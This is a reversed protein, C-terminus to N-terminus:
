RLRPRPATDGDSRAVVASPVPLGLLQAILARNGQSSWDDYAAWKKRIVGAKDIVFSEPYGTIKYIATMSDRGSSPVDRLIDFTLGYGRTFAQVTSDDSEDHTNVGVIKLGRPGYEKYLKELSPMEVRCPVCWTAWVNVLVVQGKYDALTRRSHAFLTVGEFDPATVGVDVPFIEDRLSYETITVAGGIATVIAVFLIWQHRRTM